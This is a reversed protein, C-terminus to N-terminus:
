RRKFIDKIAMWLAQPLSLIHHKKKIIWGVFYMFASIGGLVWILLPNFKEGGFFYLYVFGAASVAVFSALTMVVDYWSSDRYHKM